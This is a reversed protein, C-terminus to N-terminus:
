ALLGEQCVEEGHAGFRQGGRHTLRATWRELSSAPDLRLILRSQARASELLGLHAYSLALLRRGLEPDRMRAVTVAVEECRGASEHLGALTWLYFDPQLPNLQLAEEITALADEARGGYQLAAGYYALIDPDNPNLELAREYAALAVDHERRYLRTYGLEAWCRADSPDRDVAAQALRAARDLAREACSSWGFLWSLTAVRALGALPRAMGPSRTRAQRFLALAQRVASQRYSECLVFGHTVLQQASCSSAQAPNEGSRAIAQRLLPVLRATLTRGWGALQDPFGRSQLQHQETWLLAGSAAEHLSLHLMVRTAADVLTGSVLYDARASSCSGLQLDSPSKATVVALERFRSLHGGLENALGVGLRAMGADGGVSEFPAVGVSPADLTSVRPRAPPCGRAASIAGDRWDRLADPVSSGAQRLDLKTLPVLEGRLEGPSSSAAAASICIGGTPAHQQLRAAIQIAAGYIRGEHLRVEGRHIGIRFRFPQDGVRDHPATGAAQQFARAFSLATDACAFLALFSDGWADVLRGGLPGILAKARGLALQLARFTALEDIAMLRCYGEVDAFLVFSDHWGRPAQANGGM